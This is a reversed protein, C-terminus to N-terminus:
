LLTCVCLRSLSLQQTGIYKKEKYDKLCNFSTSQLGGGLSELLNTKELEPFLASLCHFFLFHNNQPRRQGMTFAAQEKEQGTVRKTKSKEHPSPLCSPSRCPASPCSPWNPSFSSHLLMLSSSSLPFPPSHPPPFLFPCALHCLEMSKM